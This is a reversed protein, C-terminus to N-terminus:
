ASAACTDPASPQPEGAAADEGQETAADAVSVAAPAPEAPAVPTGLLRPGRGGAAVSSRPTSPRSAARRAMEEAYGPGVYRVEAGPAADGLARRLRVELRGGDLTWVALDSRRCLPPGHARQALSAAQTFLDVANLQANEPRFYVLGVLSDNTLVAVAQLQRNHSAAHVDRRPRSFVVRMEKAELAATVQAGDIGWPLPPPLEQAAASAHTVLVAAGLAALRLLHRTM